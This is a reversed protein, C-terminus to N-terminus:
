RALKEREIERDGESKEVTECEKVRKSLTKGGPRSKLETRPPTPPTEENTMQMAMKINMMTVSQPGLQLNVGSAEKSYLASHSKKKNKAKIQRETAKM